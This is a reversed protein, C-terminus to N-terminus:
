SYSSSTRQSLSTGMLTMCTSFLSQKRRYGMVAWTLVSKALRRVELTGQSLMALACTLEYADIKGNGDM